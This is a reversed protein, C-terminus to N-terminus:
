KPYKTSTWTTSALYRAASVQVIPGEEFRSSSALSLKDMMAPYDSGNGEQMPLLHDMAVDFARLKSLADAPNTRFAGHGGCRGIVDSNSEDSSPDPVGAVASVVFVSGALKGERARPTTELSAVALIRTHFTSFLYERVKSAPAHPLLM